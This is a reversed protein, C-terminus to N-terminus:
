EKKRSVGATKLLDKKKQLTTKDLYGIEGKEGGKTKAAVERNEKERM